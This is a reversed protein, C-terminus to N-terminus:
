ENKMTNVILFEPGGAFRFDRNDFDTDALHDVKTLLEMRAGLRFWSNFPVATEAGIYLLWDRNQVTWGEGHNMRLIRHALGGRFETAAPWRSFAVGGAACIFTSDSFIRGDFPPPIYEVTSHGRRGNLYALPQIGPALFRRRYELEVLNDQARVPPHPIDTVYANGEFPPLFYASATLANPGANLGGRVGYYFPLWLGDSEYHYTGFQFEAFGGFSTYGVTPSLSFDLAMTSGAAAFLAACVVRVSLRGNM